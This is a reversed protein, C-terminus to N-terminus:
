KRKLCIHAACGVPLLVYCGHSIKQQIPGQFPQNLRKFNPFDIIFKLFIRIAVGRSSSDSFRRSGSKGLRRSTKRHRIDGLIQLQFRCPEFHQTLYRHPDLKHLFGLFDAENGHRKLPLPLSFYTADSLHFISPKKAQMTTNSARKDRFNAAMKFLHTKM